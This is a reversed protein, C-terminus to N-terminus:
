RGGRLQHKTTLLTFAAGMHISQQLPHRRSSNHGREPLHKAVSLTSAQKWASAKDGHDSPESASAKGGNNNSL